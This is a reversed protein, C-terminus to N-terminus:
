LADRVARHARRWLGFGLLAVIAGAAALKAWVQADPWRGWVVLDHAAQVVWAAPNWSLLHALPARAAEALYVVPTLWFWLSTALALGERVDPVFVALLALVLGAWFLLWVVLLVLPLLGLWTATALGHAAMGVLLVVLAPLAALGEAGVAAAVLWWLAIPTKRALAAGDAIAATARQLGNSWWWWFVLGCLLYMAYGGRGLRALAGEVRPAMWESFVLWFVAMQGLPWLLSWAAGAWTGAYRDLWQARMLRWLLGASYGSV